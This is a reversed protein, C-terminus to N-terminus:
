IKYSALKLPFLPDNYFCLTRYFVLTRYFIVNWKKKKKMHIKKEYLIKKMFHTYSKSISTDFLACKM